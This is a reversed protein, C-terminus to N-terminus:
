RQLQASASPSRSSRGTICLRKSPVATSTASLMGFSYGHSARSLRCARQEEASQRRVVLRSLAVQGLGALDSRGSAPGSRGCGSGSSIVASQEAHCLRVGSRFRIKLRQKAQQMVNSTLPRRLPSAAFPVWLRLKHATGRSPITLRIKRAWACFAEM